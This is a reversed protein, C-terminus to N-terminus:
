VFDSKSIHEWFKHGEPTEAWVFSYAVFSAFGARSGQRTLSDAVVAELRSPIVNQRRNHEVNRKFRDYVGLQVLADAYKIKEVNEM